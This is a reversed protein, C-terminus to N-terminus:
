QGIYDSLLKSIEVRWVSHEPSSCHTLVVPAWFLPVKCGVLQQKGAKSPQIILSFLKTCSSVAVKDQPSCQSRSFTLAVKADRRRLALCGHAIRSKYREMGTGLDAPGPCCLDNVQRHTPAVPYPADVRQLSSCGPATGSTWLTCMPKGLMIGVHKKVACRMPNYKRTIVCSFPQLVTLPTLFPKCRSSIGDRQASNFVASLQYAPFKM